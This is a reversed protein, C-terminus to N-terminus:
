YNEPLPAGDPSEGPAEPEEPTEEAAGPLPRKIIIPTGEPMQLAMQRVRHRKIQVIVFDTLALALSGIGAMAIVIEHERNNMNVAGASKLPWPAYRTDWNHQSTRWTDMIFTATFM